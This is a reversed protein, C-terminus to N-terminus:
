AAPKATIIIDQETIFVGGEVRRRRQGFSGAFPTVGNDGTGVVSAALAAMASVLDTAIIVDSLAGVRARHAALSTAPNRRDHHTRARFTVTVAWNLPAADAIQRPISPESQAAEVEICDGTREVGSFGSHITEGTLRAQAALYAAALVELKDEVLQVYGGTFAASM